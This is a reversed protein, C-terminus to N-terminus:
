VGLRVAVGGSWGSSHSRGKVRIPIKRGGLRGDQARRDVVTGRAGEARRAGVELNSRRRRANPIRSLHGRDPRADLHQALAELVASSSMPHGAARLVIKMVRDPSHIGDNVLVDRLMELKASRRLEPIVREKFSATTWHDKKAFSKLIAGDIVQEFNVALALVEGATRGYHWHSALQGLM